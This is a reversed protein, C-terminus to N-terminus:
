ATVIVLLHLPITFMSVYRYCLSDGENSIKVTNLHYKALLNLLRWQQRCVYAGGLDVRGTEATQWVNVGNVVM